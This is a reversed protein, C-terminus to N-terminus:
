AFRYWGRNRSKCVYLAEDALRMLTDEDVSDEPALAIGNSIGIEITQKMVTFPTALSDSLREAFTKVDGRGGIGVQIVSFEDGGIRAVTDTERVLQRLREAVAKLLADGVAHGLTDNVPKFRDLDLCHLAVVAQGRKVQALAM